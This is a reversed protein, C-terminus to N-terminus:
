NCTTKRGGPATEIMQGASAPNEADMYVVIMLLQSAKSWAPVSPKGGCLTASSFYVSDYFHDQFSIVLRTCLVRSPELASVPSTKRGCSNSEFMAHFLLALLLALHRNLTSPCSYPLELVRISMALQWLGACLHHRESLLCILWTLDVACWFGATLVYNVPWHLQLSVNHRPGFGLSCSAFIQTLHLSRISASAIHFRLSSNRSFFRHITTLSSVFPISSNNFWRVFSVFLHHLAPHLLGNKNSLAM